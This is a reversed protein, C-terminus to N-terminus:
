RVLFSTEIALRMEEAEKAEREEREKDIKAQLKRRKEEQIAAYKAEAEQRAKM